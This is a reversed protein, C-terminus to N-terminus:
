LGLNLPDAPPEPQSVRSRQHEMRTGLFEELLDALARPLMNRLVRSAREQWGDIPLYDAPHEAIVQEILLNVRVRDAHPLPKIQLLTPPQWHGKVRARLWCQLSPLDLTMEGYRVTSNLTARILDADEPDPSFFMQTSTNALMAQVVPEMGEVKRMMSLSQALVFMRAGFKAGESLMSELRMGSGIEQAEDVIIYFPIPKNLTARRYAADFVNYIVSATLRAGERGMEGSPLRLIIWARENIWRKLDVFREQHMASFLWPSLELAMVKSLVPSIM